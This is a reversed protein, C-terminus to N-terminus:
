KWRTNKLFAVLDALQQPSLPEVLGDPMISVTGPSMESIESRPIRIEAGIGTTLIIEDPTDKKVLGSYEVEEITTVRLPEFSRVFSLSPYLIAELLDRETRIKGISTLDPGIEGGLYGIAHCTRCATQESNFLAQGRRIDGGKMSAMLQDIHANQKEADEDLLPYLETAQARVSEPFDALRAQISEIRLSGFAEARRLSEVLKLGLAESTQKEFAALLLNVELPGAHKVSETLQLLQEVTLEIASLLSAASTRMAVSHVPRVSDTLFAFLNSDVEVRKAPVAALAELRVSPPHQSDHAISLLQHILGESDESQLPLSRAAALGLEFLPGRGKLVGVLPDIWAIPLEKIRTARITRLCIEQIAEVDVALGEAIVQQIASDGVFRSMQQAISQREELSLNKRTLQSAYFGALEAGWDDHRGAIWHATDRLIPDDSTLLPVVHDAPLKAGPMQDLAVLAARRVHPNSSDLGVRVGQPDNLEILAYIFSHDLIRDVPTAASELLAAVAARDGIRGLAEASARRHHASAHTLLRRLSNVALGDRWLAVSHIAAQRVTEDEDQLATVVAARADRADIRTLAWVAAVRATPDAMFSLSAALAPVASRGRNGLENVARRRVFVREDALRQVLEGPTAGAWPMELGRPDAVPRADMRRVRYIGGLVDPKYLQSTPCCLKYWGGTDIVILSGDADEIIHTPHFDSNDSVLFDEDITRYTSGEKILQHRTIKQLNFSSSFLNNRYAEGFANSEYRMLACAAAPGLHSLTPLIEGTRPHEDIVDHIKGYTGGYIAHLIGDRKGGGPHQIFTSSFFREGGASFAVEVPNDMGGTMVPEVGGGDPHRRFIHAARTKFIGGTTLTLEQKAFAGKCWYIWGDIGLYPGHLDNACGTLTGPNFWVERQDAVGDDDTDTLKWIAPPATVYLSGNLWMTGALFMMSDAFVTRRDFRGDGDTDELRLISHPRDKLQQKVPDNSGSSEAVYLRGQEDFDATIPRQTLPSEAILEVVFGDPVTITQNAFHFEAANGPGSTCLVLLLSFFAYICRKSNVAKLRTDMTFANGSEIM